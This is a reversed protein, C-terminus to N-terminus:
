SKGPVSKPKLCLWTTPVQYRFRPTGDDYPIHWHGDVMQTVTRYPRPHHFVVTGDRNFRVIQIQASHQWVRFIMELRSDNLLFLHDRFVDDSVFKTHKSQLAAYLLFPDDLSRLPFILFYSM